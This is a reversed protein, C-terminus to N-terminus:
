RTSVLYLVMMLLLAGALLGGYIRVRMKQDDRDLQNNFEALARTDALARKVKPRLEAKKALGTQIKLYAEEHEASELMIIIM